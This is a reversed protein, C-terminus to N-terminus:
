KQALLNQENQLVMIQIQTFGNLAALTREESKDLVTEKVPIPVFNPNGTKANIQNYTEVLSSLTKLKQAAPLDDKFYDRVWGDTLLTNEKELESPLIKRGTERELIYAKLEECLANIKQSQAFADQKGPNTKLFDAVQKQEQHLIQENRLFYSTNLENLRTSGGPSRVLSMLLGSGAVILISTVISNVKTEANRIGTFFYVPLFLLLMIGIATLGLVNALPWHMLKFLTSLSFLIASLTGAALIFPSQAQEKEKIKLTFLLPLFLLSFLAIGIVILVGAGPWHMFKFVIGISLVIASFAGSALMIKKMAYYNKHTLLFLTEEEIEKLETKYFTRITALYFGEFNGTAELNQEIICCVHDLLDQQLSEMELGRSQIDRSIFDIQEESLQYM